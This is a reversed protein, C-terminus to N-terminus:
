PLRIVLSASPILAVVGATAGAASISRSDTFTMLKSAYIKLADKQQPTIIVINPNNLSTVSMLQVKQNPLKDLRTLLVDLASESTQANYPTNNLVTALDTSIFMTGATYAYGNLKGIRSAYEALITVMQVGTLSNNFFNATELVQPIGSGSLFGPIGDTPSGYIITAELMADWGQQQSIALEGIADYSEKSALERQLPNFMKETSFTKTRFSQDPQITYNSTGTVANHGCLNCDFPMFNTVMRAKQVVITTDCYGLSYDIPLIQDSVFPTPVPNNALTMVIYRSMSEINIIRM